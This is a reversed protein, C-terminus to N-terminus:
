LNLHPRYATSRSGLLNNAGVGSSLNNSFQTNLNNLATNAVHRQQQNNNIMNGPNNNFNSIRNTLLSREGMVVGERGLNQRKAPDPQQNNLAGQQRAQPLPTGSPHPM